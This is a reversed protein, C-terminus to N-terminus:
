QSETAGQDKGSKKKTDSFIFIM